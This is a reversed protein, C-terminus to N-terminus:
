DPVTQDDTALNVENENLEPLSAAQMGQPIMVQNGQVEEDPGPMDQTDRANEGVATQQAAVPGALLAAVATGAPFRTWTTTM